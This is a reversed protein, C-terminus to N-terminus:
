SYKFILINGSPSSAIACCVRQLMSVDRSEKALAEWYSWTRKTWPLLPSNYPHCEAASRTRNNVLFSSNIANILQYDGYVRASPLQSHLWIGGRSFVHRYIHTFFAWIHIYWRNRLQLCLPCLLYKRSLAKPVIKMRQAHTHARKKIDGHRPPTKTYQTSPCHVNFTWTWTCVPKYNRQLPTFQFIRKTLCM